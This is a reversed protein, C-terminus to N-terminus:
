SPSHTAVGGRPLLRGLMGFVPPCIRSSRFESFGKIEPLDNPLDVALRPIVAAGWGEADQKKAVMRGIDWYLRLMEANASM